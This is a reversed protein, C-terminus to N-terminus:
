NSSLEEVKSDVILKWCSKGNVGCYAIINNKTWVGISLADSVTKLCHNLSEYTIEKPRVLVKKHESPYMKPPPFKTLNSDSLLEWDVCKNYRDNIGIFNPEKKMRILCNDYTPIHHSIHQLNASYRYRSSYNSNGLMLYNMSRRKPQDGLLAVIEFHVYVNKHRRTCYFKNNVGSCLEKCESIFCSEVEDHNGSNLGPSIPYTNNLDNSKSSESVLTVTKLWVSDRNDKISTNPEFDDSWQIGLIVVIDGIDINPHTAIARQFVQKAITSDSINRQVDVENLQM